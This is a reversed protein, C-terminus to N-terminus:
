DPTVGWPTKFRMWLPLISPKWLCTSPCWSVLPFVAASAKKTRHAPLRETFNGLTGRVVPSLPDCM